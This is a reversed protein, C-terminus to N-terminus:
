PTSGLGVFIADVADQPQAEEAIGEATLRTREVGSTHMVRVASRARGLAARQRAAFGAVLVPGAPHSAVLAGLRRLKRRGSATPGSGGRFVGRVRIALGREVQEVAFGAAGAEDILAQRQDPDIDSSSRVSGLARLAALLAEDAADAAAAPTRASDIRQLAREVSDTRSADAGLARAAALMLEARRRLVESADRELAVQESPTQRGAEDVVAQTFALAAQENAVRAAEEHAFSAEVMARTTDDRAIQAELQRLRREVALRRAEIKLRDTEAIATELLLRARTEHDSAEEGEGESRATEAAQRALDAATYLDPARRKAVEAEESAFREDVALQGAGSCAVLVGLAAIWLPRAGLGRSGFAATRPLKTHIDSM